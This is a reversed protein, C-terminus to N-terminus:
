PHCSLPSQCEQISISSTVGARGTMRLKSSPKSCFLPHYFFPQIELSLAHSDILQHETSSQLLTLPVGSDMKDMIKIPSTSLSLSSRCSIQLFLSVFYSISEIFSHDATRLSWSLSSYALIFSIFNKLFLVPHQVPTWM